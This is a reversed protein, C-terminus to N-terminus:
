FTLLKGDVLLCGREHLSLMARYIDADVQPLVDLIAQVTAGHLAVDVVAQEVKDLEGALALQGADARVSADPPLTGTELRKLEDIKSLAELVASYMPQPELAPLSSDVSARFEFSGNELALLRSLAKRGSVGGFRAHYLSGSEFAIVGELDGHAILLTGRDAGSSLMQVLNPLGLVDIPGAISGLGRAHEAARISSIFEAAEEHEGPEPEFQIALGPGRQEDYAHRVVRGRVRLEAGKTPHVLTLCVARGVPIPTPVSLLAGSDSIDRTLARLREDTTELMAEVAAPSRGAARKGPPPDPASRPPRFQAGAIPGLRERLAAAPLLIQVAVGPKGGPPVFRPAVHSVVEGPLYISQDRFVLRLEVELKESVRFSERSEIFIGGNAINRRYERQFRESTAFDVRLRRRAGTPTADRTAPDTM